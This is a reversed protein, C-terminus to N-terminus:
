GTTGPTAAIQMRSFRTRAQVADHQMCTLSRLAASRQRQAAGRARVRTGHHDGAHCDSYTTTRYGPDLSSHMIFVMRSQVLWAMSPECSHVSTHRAKHPLMCIERSSQLMRMVTHRICAASRYHWAVKMKQAVLLMRWTPLDDSIQRQGRFRLAASWCRRRGEAIARAPQAVLYLGFM